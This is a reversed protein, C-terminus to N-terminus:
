AGEVRLLTEIHAGLREIAEGLRDKLKSAKDRIKQGNNEVTASWKVIEDLAEADRAIQKVASDMDKLETGLREGESRERVALARGLSIGARLIPDSAPDSPDWVLVVDPGHRGLVDMGEPASEKSFVLVGVVADRNERATALEDLAGRLNYSKDDKVEVVIRAGPAATEVGLTVVFDGIKCRPVTGTTSGCAEFGDERKQADASVFEQVMTEFEVGHRTSRSAERRRTALAELTARVETHFAANSRQIAELHENLERRLRSLASTDEDLSLNASFQQQARKVEGILRSLAGGENDLSFEAKIRGVDCALEHRLKGNEDALQGLARRLASDERDMSFEGLIQETHKALEECVRGKIQALLGDALEPSLIRLIESEQGVFTDLTKALSSTEGDVHRRILSELEGDRDFLKGLRRPLDGAAPDFYHALTSEIGLVIDQGRQVLLERVAGVVREGEHRIAGADLAGSARRIAAVGIGLAALAFDSRDAGEPYKALEAVVEPDRVQVKLDITADVSEIRAVDARDIM